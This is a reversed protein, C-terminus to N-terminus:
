ERWLWRLSSPLTAGGHALSHFGQGYDFHYDYGRFKLAAAMEMNALLWNGWVNDIDNVGGQLYVRIPKREEARVYTWLNHGARINAFSGVHSLVKSFLEPMQWAANMACIGGSSIGGIAHAAADNRLNVTKRVEPLLEDRLLRAYQDSLTDYEFSRNQAHGPQEPFTGPNIFLGVTVPMHGKHILNDFVTPVNAPAQLYMGGDQFVMLCAPQEPRYQAPVYIWYDRMTGAFVNSQWSHQTVQGKPVGPQPLCDPELVFHEVTVWNTKHPQAGTEIRYATASFNPMERVLVYLTTDDLRQMAFRTANTALADPRLDPKPAGWEEWMNGDQYTRCVLEPPTGDAAEIAWLVTTEEISHVGQLLAAHEFAARIQQALQLTDAQNLSTALAAQLAKVALTM